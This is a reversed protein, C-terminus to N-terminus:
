HELYEISAGTIKTSKLTRSVIGKVIVNAGSKFAETALTSYEQSNLEVKINTKRLDDDIVAVNITIIDRNEINADGSISSIKGCYLKEVNQEQQPTNKEIIDMLPEYCKSNLETQSPILKSSLPVYINWDAKVFVQSNINEDYIKAIATLFNVSIRGEDLIDQLERSKSSISSQIKSIGSLIQINVKRSLPLDEQKPDFITYQYYGLPCLINLIYSGIETQGFQYKSLQSSVEKTNLRSHIKAPSTTDLIASALLDKIHEINEAMSNFPISGKSTLEDAIRWKLIDHSPNLLKNTLEEITKKETNAIVTLTEKVERYYDTFKKSMPVLVVDDGRESQFQKIRGDYLDPLQQWKMNKLYLCLNQADLKDIILKYDKM